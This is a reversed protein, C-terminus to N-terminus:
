FKENRTYPPLMSRQGATVTPAPMGPNDPAAGSVPEVKIVVPTSAFEHGDWVGVTL